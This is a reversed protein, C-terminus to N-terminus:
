EAPNEDIEDPIVNKEIEEISATTEKPIIIALTEENPRYSLMITMGHYEMIATIGSFRRKGYVETFVERPPLEPLEIPMGTWSSDPSTETLIIGHSTIDDDELITYIHDLVGKQNLGDIHYTYTISNVAEKETRFM